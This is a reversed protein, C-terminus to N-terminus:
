AKSWPINKDQLNFRQRRDNLVFEPAGDSCEFPVQFSCLIKPPCSFGTAISETLVLDWLILETAAEIASNASTGILSIWLLLRSFAKLMRPKNSIYCKVPQTPMPYTGGRQGGVMLCHLKTSLNHPYLYALILTYTGFFYQNQYKSTVGRWEQRGWGLPTSRLQFYYKSSPKCGLTM